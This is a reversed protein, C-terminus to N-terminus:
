GASLNLVVCQWMAELFFVEGQGTVNPYSGEAIEKRTGQSLSARPCPQRRWTTLLVNLNCPNLLAVM